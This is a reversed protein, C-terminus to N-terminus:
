ILCQHPGLSFCSHCCHIFSYIFFILWKTMKEKGALNFIVVIVQLGTNKDECYNWQLLVEMKKRWVCVDCVRTGAREEGSQTRPSSSKVVTTRTLATSTSNWSRGTTPNLWLSCTIARNLCCLSSPSYSTAMKMCVNTHDVHLAAVENMVSDAGIIYDTFPRLGSLAAPSNPEVEQVRSIWSVTIQSLDSCFM